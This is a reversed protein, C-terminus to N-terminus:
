QLEIERGSNLDAVYDFFTDKSDEPSGQGGPYFIAQDEPTYRYERARELDVLRNECSLIFNASSGMDEITMVDMFGKLVLYPDPVLGVSEAIVGFWISVPRDQYEENQALEILQDNQGSLQFEMGAAKIQATEVIKTLKLLDGAGTFTTSNWVLDGWGTWLNLNGSDFELKTLFVPMLRTATLHSRLGATISRAM